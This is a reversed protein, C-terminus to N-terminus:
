KKGRQFGRFFSSGIDEFATKFATAVDSVSYNFVLIQYRFTQEVRERFLDKDKDCMKDFWKEIKMERLCQNFARRKYAAKRNM